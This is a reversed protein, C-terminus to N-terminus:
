RGVIDNFKLLYTDYVSIFPAYPKKVDQPAVFIDKLVKDWNKGDVHYLNFTGTIADMRDAYVPFSTPRLKGGLGSVSSNFSLVIGRDTQEFNINGKDCVLLIGNGNPKTCLVIDVGMRNGEFYLDGAIMSYIGYNNASSKGPYSAYPGNGLWQVQTIENDLLFGIGAELLLHQSKEAKLDFEIKLGNNVPIRNIRGSVRISDNEYMYIGNESKEPLMLYNKIVKSSVRSDESLSTKRGVRVLIDEQIFDTIQGSNDAAPNLRAILYDSSEPANVKVVQRNICRNEKDYMDFHLLYIRNSLKEPLTLDITHTTQSRAPCDPVFSGKQLVEKDATLYWECRVNEKLNIYDYRNRLWVPVSQRGAVLTFNENLIQAQAYNRQVEYYNSLPIRNAYLLGDTGQNGNMMIGGSDSLWLSDTWTYIDSKKGKFPMGQDVWEWINGGALNDNSEILEWLERHQELSQGLTHCYETLIVPRKATQAYYKLTEVPPYHPAYIDVFDPIDYKLSLFYDHIMPYCIPRTPDLQKVYKGTEEAIPTLPNENGISWFLVSAHNKDRTVTALARTLLIDQFSEDYLNRDGFGFPVEDMVYFGLSDCLEYFRPVFPYHSTRIYNVNAEKMLRLDNLMLEESIVKGHFPDTEHMTIGRLKLAVGNLKLIHGEISTQRIGFKESFSQLAKEGNYLGYELRYLDPTEATWLDPHSITVDGHVSFDKKVPLRFEEKVIGNKDIIKGQISLNGARKKSFSTIEFDFGVRASTDSLSNTRITIDKVHFDPVPFISVDRSIGVQVWDDNGDFDFGKFHTYVRLALLNDGEKLYPTIDFLCTNYSSEWKGAYQGNVWVDYGRLVGDFRLITYENKWTDPITFTTRYLGTLSDPQAYRPETYGLIDWNGPVPIVDWDSDVYEPQYFDMYASWDLGRIFRFKWDGNLSKILAPDSVPKVSKFADIIGASLNAAMFILLLSLVIRKKM